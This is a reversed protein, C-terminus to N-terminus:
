TVEGLILFSKIQLLGPKSGHLPGISFICLHQVPSPSRWLIMVISQKTTNILIQIKYWYYVTCMCEGSNLGQKNKTSFHVNTFSKIVMTVLKRNILQPSLSILWSNFDQNNPLSEGWPKFLSISTEREIFNEVTVHGDSVDSMNKSDYINHQRPTIEM